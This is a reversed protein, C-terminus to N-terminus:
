VIEGAAVITDGDYFVALQGPTVARVPKKFIAGLRDGGAETITAAHAHLGYRVKVALEEGVQLPRWYVPLASALSGARLDGEDGLTVTNAAADRAVVYLRRDSAYGTGRRQGVTFHLAGNHRGIKNGNTDLFDGAAFGDPAHRMLFAALDEGQLFCIDQSEKVNALPLGAVKARVESVSLGAIPFLVKELVPPDIRALFYIQSKRRDAPEQLFWRGNRRTKAAYHGTAFLSGPANKELAALVLGFKIHRNCQVCPNPTLGRRYAQVFHELVEKRFADRVDVVDWPLQLGRALTEVRALTDDDGALGLRMTLARVDHGQERLLLVAATSDKGGSFAVAVPLGGAKVPM